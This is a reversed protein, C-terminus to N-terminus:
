LADRRTIQLRTQNEGDGLWHLELAPPIASQRAKLTDPPTAFVLELRNDQWHLRQPREDGLGDLFPRLDNLLTLLGDRPLQQLLKAKQEALRQASPANGRQQPFYQWYRALTQTQLRDAQQGIRYGSILPPLAFTALYLGGLVPLLHRWRRSAARKSGALHQLVNVQTQRAGAALLPMASDSAVTPWQSFCGPPPSHSLPAPDPDFRSFILALEEEDVANFGAYRSQRVLWQRQLRLAQWRQSADPLALVDPLAQGATIGADSLWDVWRQLQAKDVAALWVDQGRQDLVTLHLQTVDGPTITELQWALAAHHGPRVKKGFTARHFLFARAGLLVTVRSGLARPQLIALQNEDALTGEEAPASAPRYYWAVSQGPRDHLHIFLEDPPTPKRM